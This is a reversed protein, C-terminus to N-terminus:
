KRIEYCNVVRIPTLRRQKAPELRLEKRLIPDFLGQDRQVLLAKEQTSSLFIAKLMPDSETALSRELSNLECQQAPAADFDFAVAALATGAVRNDVLSVVANFGSFCAFFSIFTLLLLGLTRAAHRLRDREPKPRIMQTSLSLSFASRSGAPFRPRPAKGVRIFLLLEFLAAAASLVLGVILILVFCTALTHAMPLNAASVGFKEGIWLAAYGKAMFLMAVPIVLTAAKFFMDSWLLRFLPMAALLSLTLASVFFVYGMLASILWMVGMPTSLATFVAAAAVVQLLLTTWIRTDSVSDLQKSIFRAIKRWPRFLGRLIWAAVWM